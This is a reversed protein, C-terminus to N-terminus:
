SASTARALGAELTPEAIVGDTVADQEVLAAVIIPSLANPMLHRFIIRLNGVGAARAPAAVPVAAPAPM